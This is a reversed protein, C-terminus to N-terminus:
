AGKKNMQQELEDIKQNSYRIMEEATERGGYDDYKIATELQGEWHTIHEKWGAIHAKIDDRNM